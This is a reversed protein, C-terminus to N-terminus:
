RRSKFYGDLVEMSAKDPVGGVHPTGSLIMVNETAENFTPWTPLGDANPNLTKIFNTWYRFMTESMKIDEESSRGPFMMRFVYPYDAGHGSGHDYMPSEKPYDPHQDFFYYYVPSKGTRSQLRAWSWIHWGFSVDRMLNRGTWPVGSDTIPYAALLKKGWQEGYREIVDAIHQSPVNTPNFSAGEDSNYGILVAVDNYKGQEYLTFQDTPIVYGDINPWACREPWPTTFASADMARLEKLSHAGLHDAYELGDKEETALSKVNEGSYMKERAPSFSGGSSCIAGRFLGKALPSACLMSVSQGGASEGYITVKKKDGGFQGINRQIWKLAEIQDLLGYNGSVGHSNEASLEPLALFGMKDVRYAISVFIIGEKAFLTGDYFSTSGSMFGGGYIWVVVPLDKKGDRKAPTWINLYLCDESNGGPFVNGQIPSKAFQTADRVGSWKEVKQPAKWRLEGVPPAAFPVGKYVEVDGIMQGKIMGGEVKLPATYEPKVNPMMGFGGMMQANAPIMVFFLLTLLSSLNNLLASHLTCPALHLNATRIAYVKGRLGVSSINYIKRAM